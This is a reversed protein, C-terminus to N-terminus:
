DIIRRILEPNAKHLRNEKDNKKELALESFDELFKTLM